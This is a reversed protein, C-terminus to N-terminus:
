LVAGLRLGFWAFTVGSLVSLALYAVAMRGEDRRAMVAAENAVHSWTSLAGLAGAGVILGMYQGVGAGTVLGLLFSALLNVALTGSPFEHNMLLGTLYRVVAGLAAAALFGI